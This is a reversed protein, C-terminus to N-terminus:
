SFSKGTSKAHLAAIKKKREEFHRILTETEDLDDISSVGEESSLM